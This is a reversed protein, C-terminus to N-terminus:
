TQLLNLGRNEGGRLFFTSEPLGNLEDSRSEDQKEKGLICATQEILLESNTYNYNLQGTIKLEINNLRALSSIVTPLKALKRFISTMLIFNGITYSTEITVRTVNLLFSASAM